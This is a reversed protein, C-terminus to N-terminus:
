VDHCAAVGISVDSKVYGQFNAAAEEETVVPKSPKRAKPPPAKAEKPLPPKPAAPPAPKAAASPKSTPPTPQVAAAQEKANNKPKSHLPTTETKTV